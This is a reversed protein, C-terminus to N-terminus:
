VDSPAQWRLLWREAALMIQNLLVAVVALLILMAYVAEMQFLSSYKSILQGLGDKASILESGIVALLSFILGLRLAAFIAPTAVPFLIKIFVQIKSAGMVASMRLWEQDVTRVGARAGSLVIFFVVTVGLAVKATMGIGFAVIFLPALAIRPMANLADLFPAVIRELTPLLGLGLGCITGVVSALVWSIIVATMTAVTNSWLEGSESATVLYDWAQLPSRNLVPDLLKLDATLQWLALWAILIMVQIIRVKLTLRSEARSKKGKPARATATRDETAATAVMGDDTM